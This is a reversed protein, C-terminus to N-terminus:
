KIEINTLEKNLAYKDDASDFAIIGCYPIAIHRYRNTTSPNNNLLIHTLLIMLSNSCVLIINKNKPLQEFFELGRNWFSDYKEMNPINLQKIEITNSRWADLSEQIDPYKTKIEEESLGDIIGMNLHYFSIPTEFPLNLQNQLIQATEITHKSTSAFIIANEASFLGSLKKATEVVQKKGLDTLAEGKGGHIGKINKFSEAHRLLVITRKIM